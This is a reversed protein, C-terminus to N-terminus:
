SGSGTRSLAAVVQDAVARMGEAFPHFALAKGQMTRSGNVWPDKSCIDHGKSAAYMDVFGVKTRRAARALADELARSVRDGLAYDGRALPLRRCGGTAPTLRLYGVLLIRADPARHRIREVSATVRDGISRTEGALDVGRQRLTDTCPSGSPDQGRVQACTTLLTRFLDLDNGGIGLTVLDTSRTVARLQPPVSANQVTHQRHTLDTTDAGSCSVDVLKTAHLKQAVLSPYNHDSRFCGNAVDTIPVLPGATFSDGLAVYRGVGPPPTTTKPAEGPLRSADHSQSSCSSLLATAALLAGLLRARLNM